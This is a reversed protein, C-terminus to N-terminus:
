KRSDKVERKRFEKVLDTLNGELVKGEKIEQRSKFVSAFVENEAYKSYLARWNCTDINTVNDILNQIREYIVKAIDNCSDAMFEKLYKKNKYNSNILFENFKEAFDFASNKKSIEIKIGNTYKNTDWTQTKSNYQGIGDKDFLIGVQLEKNFDVYDYTNTETNFYKSPTNNLPKIDIKLGLDKFNLDSLENM